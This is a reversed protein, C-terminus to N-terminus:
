KEPIAIAERSSQALGCAVLPSKPFLAAVATALVALAIVKKLCAMPTDESVVHGPHSPRWMWVASHNEILRVLRLATM